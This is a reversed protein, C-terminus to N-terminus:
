SVEVVEDDDDDVVDDVQVDKAEKEEAAAAARMRSSSQYAMGAHDPCYPTGSRIGRGCFTFDDERPDGIPWRCMRETLDILAVGGGPPIEEKEIKRPEVPEPRALPNNKVGSVIVPAVPKRADGATKRAVPKPPASKRPPDKKAVPKAVVGTKKIPSPRNSLGMRHAKGIVANRTVGKGLTKAIDAASKGEKWMKKLLAIREDTWSM